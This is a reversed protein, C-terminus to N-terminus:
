VKLTQIEIIIYTNKNETKLKLSKIRMESSRDM